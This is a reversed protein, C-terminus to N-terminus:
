GPWTSPRSASARTACRWCRPERERRFLTSVRVGRDRDPLAELANMVLNVVVQEVQQADGEVPPLDSALAVELRGTRTRIAHALM